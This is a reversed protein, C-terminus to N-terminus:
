KFLESIDEQNFVYDTNCYHCHVSVKGQEAIIDLLEKKGVSILVDSIKRRSCNCIYDPHSLYLGKEAIEGAFFKTIIGDAGYEKIVDAPKVFNQMINEAKDM